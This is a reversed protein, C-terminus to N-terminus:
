FIWIGNGHVPTHIGQYGPYVIKYRGRGYRARDHDKWRWNAKLWEDKTMEVPKGTEKSIVLGRAKDIDWRWHEKLWRYKETDIKGKM